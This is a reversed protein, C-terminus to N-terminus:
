DPRLRELFLGARQTLQSAEARALEPVADEELPGYVARAEEADAFTIHRFPHELDKRRSAEAREAWRRATERAREVLGPWQEATPPADLENIALLTAWAHRARGAPYDAWLRDWAEHVGEWSDIVGTRISELLSDYASGTVLMGGMNLWRREREGALAEALEAASLNMREAHELLTTVAYYHAAERYAAWGRAPKILRVPRSSNEVGVAPVALGALADEGQDLLTRGIERAEADEAAGTARGTWSELLGLAEFIEEVTDPALAETVIRQRNHVRRDRERWKCENRKLAYMNHIFLYAPMLTLGGEEPALLSFPLRVDIEQPYSGKAALVFSAFRCPFKFNTTLGPWFGRGARLEADPARSNHDSGITAGAAINSQGLITSSTLFSNNHHQVHHPLLLSYILECCRVASNDGVFVHELRAGLDLQVRTGLVFQHARVGRGVSCGHGIIGEDLGVGEGIRTPEEADSCITLSELRSAGDLLAHAGIATDLIAGCGLIISRHGVTGYRGRRAAGHRDTLEALRRRLATDTPHAAWLCADAPLMGPFAALARRGTASAVQTWRRDAEAEGALLGGHGFRAAATTLMRGVDQIMVGDGIVIRALYRAHTIGCGNGIDCDIITSEALGAALRLGEAELQDSGFTGIRVLGEFRCHRVRAPEFPERVLVLRWDEATSGGRELAAIEDPQLPRFDPEGAGFIEYWASERGAEADAGVTPQRMEARIQENPTAEM